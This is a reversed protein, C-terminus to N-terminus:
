TTRIWWRWPRVSPCVSPCVSLRCAIAIGRKASFHMARYFRYSYVLSPTKSSKKKPPPLPCIQPYSGWAGKAVHRTWRCVQQQQQQQHHHHHHCTHDHSPTQSLERAAASGASIAWIIIIHNALLLGNWSPTCSSKRCLTAPSVYQRVNKRLKSVSILLTTRSVSVSYM